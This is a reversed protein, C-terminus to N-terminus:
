SSAPEVLLRSSSGTHLVTERGYVLTAELMDVPETVTLSLPDDQYIRGYDQDYISGLLPLRAEPAEVLAEPEHRVRVTLSWTHEHLPVGGEPFSGNLTHHFTPVPIYVAVTGNADALGLWTEGDVAVEVLAHAPPTSAKTSELQARLVAIEGPVSRSPSSFLVFGGVPSEPPSGSDAAPYVGRKVRPLDALFAVPVYNEGVDDVAVVYRRQSPLVEPGSMPADGFEVDRLGTLNLFAYVGSMTRFATTESRPSGEPWARVRLGDTIPRSTADDWFRVGLTSFRTVTDVVRYRMDRM